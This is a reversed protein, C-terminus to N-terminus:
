PLAEIGVQTLESLVEGMGTASPDDTKDWVSWDTYHLGFVMGAADPWTQGSPIQVDRCDLVADWRRNIGQELRGTCKPTYWNSELVPVKGADVAVQFRLQFNHIPETGLNKLVLRPKLYKPDNFGEDRGTVLVQLRTTDNAPAQVRGIPENLVIL